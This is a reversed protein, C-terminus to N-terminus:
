GTINTVLEVIRVVKGDVIGRILVKTGDDNFTPDWAMDFTQAYSKGDVLVLYKGDQEVTTGVHAGGASIVPQWAMDYRGSWATGNVMVAWKEDEKGLAAVTQGNDSVRLDAVMDGFTTQWAAGNVAM